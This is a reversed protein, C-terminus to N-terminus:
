SPKRGSLLKSEVADLEARRARRMYSGATEMRAWGMQEQLKVLAEPDGQLEGLFHHVYTHRFRHPFLDRRNIGLRKAIEDLARRVARAASAHRCESRGTPVILDAVNEAYKWDRALLKTIHDALPEANVHIHREGKSVISLTGTKSARRLNKRTLRLVDGCRLGRIAIISLAACLAHPLSDDTEIADAVRFWADRPLPERSSKPLRAPLRIEGIREALEHDDSFRAWSRLAAAISHRYMPSLERNLLVETPDEADLHRRLLRTTQEITSVARGRRRLWTAYAALDSVDFRENALSTPM